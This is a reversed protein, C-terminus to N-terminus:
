NNGLLVKLRSLNNKNDEILKKADIISKGLTKKIFAWRNKARRYNLLLNIENDSLDCFKLINGLKILPNINESVRFYKEREKKYEYQKRSILKELRINDKDLLDINKQVSLLYIKDSNEDHESVAKVEPTPPLFINKIDDLQKQTLHFKETEKDSTITIFHEM